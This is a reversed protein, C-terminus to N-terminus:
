NLAGNLVSKDIAGGAAGWQALIKAYDGDDMLKQVAGQVSAALGAQDKPVVIGYPAAAFNVEANEFQGGTQSVTYIVVPSDALYADIRGAALASNVDTQAPYGQSKPAPKGADSCAKVVSGDVDPKTLQDLQTTGNEAGVTLGCLDTETKVNKPNGSPVMTSTGASYYTVMDVTNEREKTDTFSSLSLDYRGASVGAIIGDFGTNTWTVKVGLVQGIANGLDVDLGMPGGAGNLLFENPPYSADTAINFTGGKYQAPVAAALTPDASLGLDLPTMPAAGAASAGASSAESSDSSDSSAPASSAATTVPTTTQGAAASSPNDTSAGCAGALLLGAACAAAAATRVMASRFRM